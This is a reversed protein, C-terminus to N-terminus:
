VMPKIIELVPAVDKIELQMREGKISAKIEKFTQIRFESTRNARGALKEEETWM